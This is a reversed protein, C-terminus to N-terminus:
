LCHLLSGYLSYEREKEIENSLVALQDSWVSMGKVTYCRVDFQSSHLLFHGTRLILLKLLASSVWLATRVLDNNQSREIVPIASEFRASPLSKISKHTTCNASKVFPQDSTLPLGLLHTKIQTHDLFRLLSTASSQNLATSGCSLFVECRDTHLGTDSFPVKSCTGCGNNSAM